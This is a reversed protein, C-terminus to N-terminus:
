GRPPTSARVALEVAVQHHVVRGPDGSTDLALVTALRGIEELPLKVTTLPPRIDRLMPVDEFGAIAMDQPVLYHHEALAAIAGVAMVDNVAFVVDVADPDLGQELLETMGVYGGDRSFQASLVHEAPLECGCATLGARFGAVRDESTALNEPGALVAFRRYGLSFLLRALRDAGGANDIVVTNVGPMPRGIAAVQGGTAAFDAIEAALAADAAPDAFRSGALIVARARQRRLEAVHRIETAPDGGTAAVTVILDNAAASAMVGAAVSAAFPDAIDHVILGISSTRGRSMAQAAANPVYHLARASALVRDALEARVTRGGSAGHLARSATALSVGAAAAVDALTPSAAAAM